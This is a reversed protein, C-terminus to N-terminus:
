NQNKASAIWRQLQNRADTVKETKLRETLIALLDSNQKVMSEVALYGSKQIEAYYEISRTVQRPHIVVEVIKDFYVMNGSAYFAAWLTDVHGPTTVLVDALRRSNDMNKLRLLRLTDWGHAEALIIAKDKLGALLLANVMIEQAHSNYNYRSMWEMLQDPHAAFIESLFGVIPAHLQKKRLTIGDNMLELLEDVKKLDPRLYYFNTLEGLRDANLSEIRNIEKAELDDPTEEAPPIIAPM